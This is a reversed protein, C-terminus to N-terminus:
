ISRLRAAIDLLEAGAELLHGGGGDSARILPVVNDLTEAECRGTFSAGEEMRIDSCSLDGDLRGTALLHVTRARVPGVVRGGITAADAVISGQISSRADVVLDGVAVRGIVRGQVHLDTAGEIDGRFVVGEAVISLPRPRDSAGVEEARQGM